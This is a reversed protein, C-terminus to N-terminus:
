HTEESPQAESASEATDKPEQARIKERLRRTSLVGILGAGVFILAVLLLLRSISFLYKVLDPMMIAFAACVILGGVLTNWFQKRNSSSRETPM